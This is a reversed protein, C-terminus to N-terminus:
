LPPILSASRQPHNQLRSVQGQPFHDERLILKGGLLYGAHQTAIDLIDAQINVLFRNGNRNAIAGALQHHFLNDFGFGPSQEIEEIPQPSLQMHRQLFSRPRGPQVVHEFGM